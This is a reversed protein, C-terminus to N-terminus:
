SFDFHLINFKKSWIKDMPWLQQPILTPTMFTGSVVHKWFRTLDLQILADAHINKRSKIYRVQIKRNFQIGQLALIRILKLCQECSSTLNDVMHVVAENDCFVIAKTDNLKTHHRWATLGVVLAYLELFKISPECSQIFSADWQGALWYRDQCAGFGLKPNRSADSYLSLM